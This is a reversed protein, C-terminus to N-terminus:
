TIRTLTDEGRPMWPAGLATGSRTSLTTPPCTRRWGPCCGPFWKMQRWSLSSQPSPSSRDFLPLFYGGPRVTHVSQLTQELHGTVRVAVNLKQSGSRNVLVQLRCSNSVLLCTTIATSMRRATNPFRVALVYIHFSSELGTRWNVTWSFFRAAERQGIYLFFMRLCCLVSSMRSSETDTSVLWDSASFLSSYIPLM